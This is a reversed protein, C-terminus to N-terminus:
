SSKSSLTESFFGVRLFFIRSFVKILNDFLVHTTIERIKWLCLKKSFDLGFFFFRSFVKLLINLLLYTIIERNEKCKQLTLSQM